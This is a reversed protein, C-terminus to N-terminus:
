LAIWAKAVASLPLFVPLAFVVLPWRWRATVCSLWLSLPLWTFVRPYSWRDEYLYVGGALALAAGGLAVLALVLDSRRWPLFLVLCVQGTLILMALLHFLSSLTDGKLDLHRWRFTMGALPADLNGQSPLFPWVGYAERLLGVWGGWLALVVILGLCVKGQRSWVAGVLVALVVAVNQERSFVAGAAWLAIGWWPGRALWAVLLGCVTLTSLVDTLDLMAPLGANVALPLLVGWWPSLGNQRSVWGGLGALGGIAALNVLPMVWFLRVPDGGSLVHCIVPYLIRLQRTAPLDIGVDHRAFPARALAYYFQGDYGNKRFSVRVEEFPFQGAREEAVCVLAAPDNGFAAVYAALLAAHFGVAAIVPGLLGRM